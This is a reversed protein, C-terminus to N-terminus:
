AHSLLVMMVTLGLTSSLFGVCAARLSLHPATSITATNDQGAM